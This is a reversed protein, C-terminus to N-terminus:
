NQAFLETRIREYAQHGLRIQREAEALLKPRLREAKTWLNTIAAKLNTQYNQDSLLVTQCGEGFLATLGLFKDVYYDSMAVGITPIGSALAFVGAHYSGTVVLRCRKIQGIIAEPSDLPSDDHSNDGNGFMLQRITEIDAEGLLRSIPIPLLPAQHLKSANQLV